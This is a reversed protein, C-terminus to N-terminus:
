LTELLYQKPRDRGKRHDKVQITEAKRILADVLKRLVLGCWRLQNERLKDTTPVM